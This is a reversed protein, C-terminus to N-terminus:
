KVRGMKHREYEIAEDAYKWWAMERLAAANREAREGDCVGKRYGRRHGRRYSDFSAGALLLAFAVVGCIIGVTM